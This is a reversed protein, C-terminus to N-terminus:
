KPSQYEVTLRKNTNNLDIYDLSLKVTEGMTDPLLGAVDFCIIGDILTGKTDGHADHVLQWEEKSKGPYLSFDHKVNGSSPISYHLTLFGDELSTMWDVLIDIPDNGSSKAANEFQVGSVTGVDLASAWEVLIADSCFSAVSADVVYRFQLYVRTRDPIDKIVNPNMVQSRSVGDLRIYRIGDQSRVTGIAVGEQSGRDYYSSEPSPEFDAKSCAPLLLVVLVVAWWIHKLVQKMCGM